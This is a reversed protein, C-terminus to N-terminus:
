IIIHKFYFSMIIVAYQTWKFANLPHLFNYISYCFISLEKLTQLSAVLAAQLFCFVNM